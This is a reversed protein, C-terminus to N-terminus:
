AVQMVLPINYCFWHWSITLWFLFIFEVKYGPFYLWADGHLGDKLFFNVRWAPIRTFVIVNVHTYETCSYLPILLLPFLLHSIM